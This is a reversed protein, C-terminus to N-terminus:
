EMSTMKNRLTEAIRTWYKLESTLKQFQVIDNTDFAKQLQEYTENMRRVNDDYYPKLEEDTDLMDILEQLDMVRLLFEQSLKQKGKVLMDDNNNHIEDKPTGKMIHLVHMARLHPKKLVDYARTVAVAATQEDDAKNNTNNRQKDPHLNKMFEHYKLRLIEEDIQFSVPLSFMQFANQHISRGNTNDKNANGSSFQGVKVRVISLRTTSPLLQHLRYIRNPIM